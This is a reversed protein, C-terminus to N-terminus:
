HSWGSISDRNNRTSLARYVNIDINENLFEVRGDGFLFNAGGRHRSAFAGNQDYGGATDCIGKGPPTNIPNVTSRLESHRTAQVWVNNVMILHGDYTEGLFITNSLGDGVERARIATCYMFMGDNEYKVSTGHGPPGHTGSMAAYSATAKHYDYGDRWAKATDSPCVFVPPRQGAVWTHQPNTSSDLVVPPFKCTKYLSQLELYPLILVFSSVGSESDPRSPPPCTKYYSGDCGWRGPPFKRNSIEYNAYAVGFQKLNNECQSQRAAERAAQIAPLLLAILIGIIAIVVLLEVLTFGNRLRKGTQDRNQEMSNLRANLLQAPISTSNVVGGRPRTDFTCRDAAAPSFRKVTGFRNMM